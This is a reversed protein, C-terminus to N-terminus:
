PTEAVLSINDFHTIYDDNNHDDCIVGAKGSLFGGADTFSYLFIGNCYFSMTEGHCIVKLSNWVNNGTKIADHKELYRIYSVSGNECKSISYRGSSVRFAYYNQLSGDGRFIMGRTSGLAGQLNNVDLRYTFDDFVGGDYYSYRSTYFQGPPRNGTMQYVGEAVSWTNSNDNVWNNAVGDYFDEIFGEFLPCNARGWDQIFLQYDLINCKGDQNLDCECDNLPNGSGPPTGCNTRGWNQIFLQYDIINCSGNRNLDCECPPTVLVDLEIKRFTNGSGSTLNTFSVNDLYNGPPLANADEDIIVTINVYMGPALTGTLPGDGIVAGDDLTVWDATKSVSYDLSADGDNQIQFVENQPLFPGWQGGSSKLHTLPRVDMDPLNYVVYNAAYGVADVGYEIRMYGDEGWDDGWSNRLFWVGNTGQNDDWGVLVVGHNVPWVWEQTNFIGGSYAHFASGVAIGVAVPGYDMIAQKIASVSPISTSNGIYGWDDIRWPHTYPGDCPATWGVYPFEIEPVAGAESEPPSYKWQHYNHAWWGGNCSWGDTNCSVLYQESLDEATGDRILLNTELIGVTGFAWCAGCTGQDRVPPCAIEDCWNWTSPLVGDAQLHKFPAGLDWNKPVVLGCLDALDRQTARSPGVTFTAGKAKLQSRLAEIEVASLEASAAATLVLNLILFLSAAIGNPVRMM